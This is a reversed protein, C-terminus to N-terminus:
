EEIRVKTLTLLNDNTIRGDQMLNLNSFGGDATQTYVGIILRYIGAPVEPNIAARVTVENVSGYKWDSSPLVSDAAAWRTTDTLEESVIQTTLSYDIDVQGIPALHLTVEVEDDSNLLRDSIEYGRLEIEDGFNINTPNPLANPESTLQTSHLRVSDRGDITNLRENTNFDYLGIRFVIDTPTTATPPIEIRYKNFVRDGSELFSTGLLGQGLYMDRQAIPNNLVTDNAHLFVSWNRDMNGTVEWETYLDVSRQDSDLGLWTNHLKLNPFEASIALNHMRSNVAIPLPQYSPRIYLFPAALAVLFLFGGMALVIRRALRHGLLGVLGVVLLVMQAQLAGFVLRGQSSWTTTAWSILGSVIAAVWVLLIVFAAHDTAFNLINHVISSVFNGNSRKERNPKWALATKVVFLGFGVVGIVTLWNLISYIFQHMPINVGGFLGWYAQMFGFREDWLQSTTAPQNRRGLVAIFASWGRWDDYLQVNRIYWWGAIAFAIACIILFNRLVPAILKLLNPEQQRQRAWEALVIAGFSLPILGVGIIKTLCALGIIIGILIIERLQSSTPSPTEASIVFRMLLFVAVTALFIIGNDNNVAASVFLRMPLFAVLAAAGAAIEPRSPATIRGIKWTFFVTGVGLLVSFIRVIRVALLTGAWPNWDPNHITLNINGDETIIGNDVHPNLWRIESMDSTDIWFTLAAGIYYYLPPQSAQQKWPGADAPDFVQVPLPNGNALHQVMPYHWLEDGGEFVPNIFAYLGGLLATAILLFSLVRRDSM